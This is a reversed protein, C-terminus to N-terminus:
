MCFAQLADSFNCLLIVYAHRFCARPKQGFFCTILQLITVDNVSRNVSPLFLCLVLSLQVLFVDSHSSSSSQSLFTHLHSSLGVYDHCCFQNLLALCLTRSIKRLTISFFLVCHKRSSM